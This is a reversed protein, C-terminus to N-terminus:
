NKDDRSVEGTKAAEDEPDFEDVLMSPCTEKVGCQTCVIHLLDTGALKINEDECLQYLRRLHVCSM